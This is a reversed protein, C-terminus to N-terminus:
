VTVGTKTSFGGMLAGTGGSGDLIGIALDGMNSDILNAKVVIGVAVLGVVTIIVSAM